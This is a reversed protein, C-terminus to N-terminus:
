GSARAPLCIRGRSFKQILRCKPPVITIPMSQMPPYTYSHVQTILKSFEVPSLILSCLTECSGSFLRVLEYITRLLARSLLKRISEFLISVHQSDHTSRSHNLSDISTSGCRM